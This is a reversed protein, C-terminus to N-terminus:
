ESTESYGCCTLCTFLERSVLDAYENMGTTFGYLDANANHQEVYKRNSTWITMRQIEEEDSGYQKGFEQLFALFPFSLPLHLFTALSSYGKRNEM